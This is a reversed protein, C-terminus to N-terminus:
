YILIENDIIKYQIAYSKSFTEIIENINEIDFTADFLQSDLELNSNKIVVNYQRELTKRIQKFPTNRFILKDDIWATYIRTDVNELSVNSSSKDWEAKFGPKLLTSNNISANVQTDYLEVSGEVLVTNINENESYDSVNFKTGLVKINM